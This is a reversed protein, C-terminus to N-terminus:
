ETFYNPKSKMNENKTQTRRIFRPFGEATCPALIPKLNAKIPKTGTQTKPQLDNYVEIGYPNATLNVNNFNAKNKMNKNKTCANGPKKAVRRRRVKLVTVSFVSFWVRSRQVEGRCPSSCCINPFRSHVRIFVLKPGCIFVSQCLPVFILNSDPQTPEKFRRNRYSFVRSRLLSRDRGKSVALSRHEGCGSVTNLKSNKIKM